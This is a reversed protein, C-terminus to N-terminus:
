IHARLLVFWFRSLPHALNSDIIQRPFQFDLALRNKVNKGNYTYRLFFSVGAREFLVLRFEDAFMEARVGLFRM